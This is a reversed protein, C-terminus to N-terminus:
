DDFAIGWNLLSQYVEDDIKGKWYDAVLKIFLIM